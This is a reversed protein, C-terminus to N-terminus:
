PNALAPLAAYRLPLFLARIFVLTSTKDQSKAWADRRGFILARADSARL